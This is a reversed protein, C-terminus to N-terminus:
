LLSEILLRSFDVRRQWLKMRSIKKREREWAIKKAPENM